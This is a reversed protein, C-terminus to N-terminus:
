KLLPEDYHYFTENEQCREIFHQWNEDLQLTEAHGIVIELAKARTLM